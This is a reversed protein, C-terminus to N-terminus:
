WDGGPVSWSRPCFPLNTTSLCIPSSGHRLLGPIAIANFKCVLIKFGVGPLRLPSRASDRIVTGTPKQPHWLSLCECVSTHCMQVNAATHLNSIGSRQNTTKGKRPKRPSVGLPLGETVGRAEKQVVTARSTRVAFRNSLDKRKENNNKKGIYFLLLM